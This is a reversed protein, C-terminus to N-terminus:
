PTGGMSRAVHKPTYSDVVGTEIRYHGLGLPLSGQRVLVYGGTCSTAQEDTSTFAQRRLFRLAQAETVEMVNQRAHPVLWCAAATTPKPAQMGVRLFPLGVTMPDTVTWALAEKAVLYIYRKNPQIFVTGEFISPSVGFHYVLKDVYATGDIPTFARDLSM